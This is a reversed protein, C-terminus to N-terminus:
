GNEQIEHNASPSSSGPENYSCVRRHDDADEQAEDDEHQEDIPGLFRASFDRIQSRAHNVDLSVRGTQMQRCPLARDLQQARERFLLARIDHNSGDLKTALEDLFFNAGLAARASARM